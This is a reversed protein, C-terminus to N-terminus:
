FVQIGVADTAACQRCQLVTEAFGVRALEFLAAGALYERAQGIHEAALLIQRFVFDGLELPRIEVGHQVLLQAAPLDNGVLAPYAYAAGPTLAFAFYPGATQSPTIGHRAM